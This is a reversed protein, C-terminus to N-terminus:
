VEEIFSMSSEYYTPNALLNFSLSSQDLTVYLTTLDTCTENFTVFFPKGIDISEFQEILDAKQTHTLKPFRVSVLINIYREDLYSQGSVSISKVSNSERTDSIRTGIGVTSFSEGLYPRGIDIVNGSNVSLRWYQYSAKTFTHTLIDSGDYSISEDVPSGTGFSDVDNARLTITDGANITTGAILLDTATLRTMYEKEFIIKKDVLLADATASSTVTGVLLGEYIRLYEYISDAQGGASSYGINLTNFTSTKIDPTGSWTNDEVVAGSELPIVIFRSDGQGGSVLDLSVILRFRQNIDTAGIDGDLTTVTGDGWNVKFYDSGQSYLIQMLSTASLRWGLMFKNAGTDNAFKPEIVMDITCKDPLTQTADIFDAAHTGDVFPFMIIEADDILQVESWYTFEADTANNSGYCRLEVDDTLNALAECKFNILLTESDYWIYDLLTGASPTGPSSGANDFDIDLAFITAAATTNRIRFRTTNGASSGKKIIVQGTLILNTFSTTFNQYNYGSNAGSNSIKTFLNGNISLTSIADTTNAATWNSGSSRLDTPDQVQNTYAQFINKPAGDGTINLDISSDGMFIRSLRSDQVNSAPYNVTADPSSVTAIDIQNNTFLKM